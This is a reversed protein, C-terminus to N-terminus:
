PKVSVYCQVFPERIATAFRLRFLGEALTPIFAQGGPISSKETLPM